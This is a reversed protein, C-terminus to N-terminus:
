GVSSDLSLNKTLYIQGYANFLRLYLNVSKEYNNLNQNNPNLKTKLTKTLRNNNLNFIIKVTLDSFLNSKIYKFFFNLLLGHYSYLIIQHNYITTEFQEQASKNVHPSKLISFFNKKKIKTKKYNFVKINFVTALSNDNFITEFKKLSLLNKSSIDICIFM